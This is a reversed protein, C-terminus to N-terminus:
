VPLEPKGSELKNVSTNMNTENQCTFPLFSHVFAATCHHRAKQIERNRFLTLESLATILIEANM